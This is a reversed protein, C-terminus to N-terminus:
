FTYSLLDLDRKHLKEVLKRDDDSYYHRYNKHNSTNMPVKSPKIRLGFQDIFAQLDHDLNEQRFVYNVAIKGTKDVIWDTVTRNTDLLSARAAVGAEIVRLYESFNLGELVEYQAAADPSRARDRADFGKVFHYFSVHWAWPNRVTAFTIFDEIRLGVKPLDAQLELYTMHAHLPPNRSPCRRYRKGFATAIYVGACKPTHIFITPLGSNARLSEFFNRPVFM